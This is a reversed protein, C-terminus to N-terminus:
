NEVMPQLNEGISCYDMSHLALTIDNGTSCVPVNCWLCGTNQGSFWGKHESQSDPCDAPAHFFAHRDVVPHVKLGHCIILNYCIRVGESSFPFSLGDYGPVLGPLVVLLAPPCKLEEWIDACSEIQREM